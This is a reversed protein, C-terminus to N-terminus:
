SDYEEEEASGALRHSRAPLAPRGRKVFDASFIESYKTTLGKGNKRQVGTEKHQGM